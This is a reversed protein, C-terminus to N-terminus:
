IKNKNYWEITQVIAAFADEIRVGWIECRVVADMDDIHKLIAPKNEYKKRAKKIKSELSRKESSLKKFVPMLRDWSSNYNLDVTLKIDCSSLKESGRVWWGKHFKYGMFKAILKNGEVADM